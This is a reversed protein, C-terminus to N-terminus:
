VWLMIDQMLGLADKGPADYKLDIRALLMMEQILVLFNGGLYHNGLMM